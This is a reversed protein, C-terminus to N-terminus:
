DVRAEIAKKFPPFEFRDLHELDGDVSPIGRHSDVSSDGHGPFHKATVLLGNEQAGRIYATILNSVQEPDEGFSRDNIVPNAPNSNV